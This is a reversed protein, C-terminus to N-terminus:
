EFEITAPPKSTYDYKVRNIEEENVIDSKGTFIIGTPAIQKSM